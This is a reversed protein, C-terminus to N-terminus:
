TVCSCILLESPSVHAMKMVRCYLLQLKCCQTHTHTDSPFYTFSYRKGSGVCHYINPYCHQTFPGICDGFALLGAAHSSIGNYGSVDSEGSPRRYTRATVDGRSGFVMELFAEKVQERRTLRFLLIVCGETPKVLFSPRTIEKKKKKNIQTIM